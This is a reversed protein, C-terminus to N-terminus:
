PLICGDWQDEPPITEDGVLEMCITPPPLGPLNVVDGPEYVDKCDTGICSHGSQPEDEPDAPDALAVGPGFAGLVAIASIVLLTRM